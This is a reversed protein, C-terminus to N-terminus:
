ALAALILKHIKKIDGVGDISDLGCKGTYYDLVPLTEQLYVRMRQHIAEGTDDARTEKKARLHIRAILEDEPAFLNIIHVKGLQKIALFKNLMEAQRVTRPFGDLIFGECTSHKALFQEVIEAILADPVLHGQSIIEEVEKGLKTKHKIAERLLEGTSLHKFGLKDALLTAQTGKGVGPPGFLIIIDM